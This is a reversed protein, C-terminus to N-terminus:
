AAAVQRAQEAQEKVAATLEEAQEPDIGLARWDAEDAAGDVPELIGCGPLLKETLALLRILTYGPVEPPVAPHHHHALVTVIDAPLEWRRGLEAGLEEHSIDGLVEAEIETIPRQPTAAIAAHLRDSSAIDLHNLVMFGIDHLLGALFIDDEKPRLKFPMARALTRMGLAVGLTHLWLQQLNLKGGQRQSMASMVAIGITVSKVRTLGLLMAAEHVSTIHRTAGFLPSNSLGILRAAIQPDTEILKLLQQEGAETDLPLALIKQAVVPMAPLNDINQIAHRLQQSTSM